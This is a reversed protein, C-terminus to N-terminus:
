ALLDLGARMRVVKDNFRVTFQRSGLDLDFLNSLDFLLDHIPREDAFALDAHDVVGIAHGDACGIRQEFREFLWRIM